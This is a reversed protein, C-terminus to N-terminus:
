IHRDAKLKRIEIDFAAAECHAHCPAPRFQLPTLREVEARLADREKVLEKFEWDPFPLNEEPNGHKTEGHESCISPWKEFWQAKKLEPFADVMDCLPMGAVLKGQRRGRCTGRWLQGVLYADGDKCFAALLWFSDTIKYRTYYAKVEGRLVQSCKDSFEACLREYASIAHLVSYGHAM